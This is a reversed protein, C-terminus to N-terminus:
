PTKVFHNAVILDENQLDQVFQTMEKALEYLFTMNKVSTGDPTKVDLSMGLEQLLDGRMSEEEVYVIEELIDMQRDSLKNVYSELEKLKAKENKLTELDVPTQGMQLKM